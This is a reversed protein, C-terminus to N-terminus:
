GSAPLHERGSRLRLGALIQLRMVDQAMPAIAEAHGREMLVRRHAVVEQRVSDFVAASCTGFCTDIALLKM